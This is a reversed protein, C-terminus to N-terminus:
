RQADKCDACTLWAADHPYDLTMVFHQWLNAGAAGVVPADMHAGMGKPGFTGEPRETFWVPGVSWGAVMVNPVRIVRMDGQVPLLEDGDDIVIWDPHEQHWRDLVAKDIYSTVGIGKETQLTMAKQGARTPAATAGTDLLFDLSEGAIKLQIRPLGSAKEGDSNRPFSMPISRTGVGPKWGASELWLAQNPYDFTWIFHSLYGAGLNGDDAGIGVGKALLASAGCLRGPADPVGKWLPSRLEVVPLAEGDVDCRRIKLGARTAANPDVVYLGSGGPGGTDVVLRLSHGDQASLRAFFHGAEYDTPIKERAHAITALAAFLLCPLLAIRHM